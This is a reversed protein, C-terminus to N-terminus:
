PKLPIQSFPANRMRSSSLDWTQTPRAIEICDSGEFTTGDLLSGRLLLEVTAGRPEADLGLARSMATKWFKLSLDDIGDGGVENCACKLDILPTTVDEIVIGSGDRWYLPSVDSGARRDNRTLKLSDMDIMSVDFDQSGAVVMSVVGKSMPDILNPCNGPKVDFNVVVPPQCTFGYASACRVGGPCDSKTAGVVISDGDVSVANGFNRRVIGPAATPDSAILRQDKIWTTGDYRFVYAAGCNRGDACDEEAAGLVITDGSISVYDAFGGRCRQEYSILIQEEVWTVGDFRYVYASKCNGDPGPRLFSGGIVATNGDLSLTRGVQDSVARNSGIIKQVLVWSAGDYHYVYVKGCNGGSFDCDSQPAGVMVTNGSVSVSQGFRTDEEGDYTPTLKQREVWSSGDYQFVYAAGCDRIRSPCDVGTAGIVITDGSIAISRGFYDNHRAGHSILKQVEDWYIGTRQFVYVQSLGSSIVAMDGSVSVKKGFSYPPRGDSATLKQLGSWENNWKQFVFVAGCSNCSDVRHNGAGVFATDGSVSVSGGIREVPWLDWGTLKRQHQDLCQSFSPATTVSVLVALAVINFKSLKNM